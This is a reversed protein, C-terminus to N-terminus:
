FIYKVGTILLFSVCIYLNDLKMLLKSMNQDKKMWFSSNGKFYAELM